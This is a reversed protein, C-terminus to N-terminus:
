RDPLPEVTREHVLRIATAAGCQDRASSDDVAPSEPHPDSMLADKVAPLEQVGTRAFLNSCTEPHAHDDDSAAVSRDNAASSDSAM